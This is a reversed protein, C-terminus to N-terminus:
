SAKNENVDKNRLLYFMGQLATANIIYNRDGPDCDNQVERPITINDVILAPM